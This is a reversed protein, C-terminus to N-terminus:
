NSDQQSRAGDRAQRKRKRWPKIVLFWLAVGGIAGVISGFTQLDM